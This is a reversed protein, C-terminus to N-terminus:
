RWLDNYEAEEKDEPVTYEHQCVPCYYKTYYLGDFDKFSHARMNFQCCLDDNDEDKMPMDTTEQKMGAAEVYLVNTHIIPREM